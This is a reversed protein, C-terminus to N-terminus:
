DYELDLATLLYRRLAEYDRFEEESQGELLARRLGSTTVVHLVPVEWSHRKRSRRNSEVLIDAVDSADFKAGGRWSIPHHALSMYQSNAKITTKNFFYIAAFSAGITGVFLHILPLPLVELPRLHDEFTLISFIASITIFCWFLSFALLAWHIPKRWRWTIEIERGDQQIKYKDNLSSGYNEHLTIHFGDTYIAGCYDCRDGANRFVGCSACRAPVKINPTSRRSM